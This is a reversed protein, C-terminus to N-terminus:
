AHASRQARSLLAAENPAEAVDVHCAAERLPAAVDDSLCVHRLPATGVGAKVALALFLTASRRSFHLVGDIHGGRLASVVPAALTEAPRAEYTEVTEVLQGTIRLAREIDPKRDRGALYVIRRPRRVLDGIRVALMTANTEVTAEGGFGRQRAVEETRTGVLLLPMLRRSELSPWATANSASFANGSTALLADVIGAPWAAQVAVIDIVPSVLASHGLAELKARLRASDEAARTLLFRM